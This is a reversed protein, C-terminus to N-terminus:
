DSNLMKIISDTIKLLSKSVDSKKNETIVQKGEDSLKRVEVDIPIAGFFQVGMEKAQKRGGGSGFLDIRHGCEPCVLGSMNEILGINQIEMKQAM